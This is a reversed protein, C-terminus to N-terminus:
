ASIPQAAGRQFPATPQLGRTEAHGTDEGLRGAFGMPLAAALLLLLLLPWRLLLLQLTPSPSCLVTPRLARRPGAPCCRYRQTLRAATHVSPTAWSATHCAITFFDSPLLRLRIDLPRRPRKARM